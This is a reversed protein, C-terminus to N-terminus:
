ELENNEAPSFAVLGLRIPECLRNWGIQSGVSVRIGRSTKERRGAAEEEGSLLLAALSPATSQGRFSNWEWIGDNRVDGTKRDLTLKVVFEESPQGTGRSVRTRFYLAKTVSTARLIPLPLTQREMLGRLSLLAVSRDRSERLAPAFHETIEIDNPYDLDLRVENPLMTGSPRIRLPLSANQVIVLTRMILNGAHLRDAKFLALPQDHREKSIAAGDEIDKLHKVGIRDPGLLPIGLLWGEDDQVPLVAYMGGPHRFLNLSIHLGANTMFSPKQTTLFPLSPGAPFMNACERFERPSPAFIRQFELNKLPLGYGWLFISQDDSTRLIEHQLRQFAREGEGYLLPMNVGFLGMLCYAEDEVRTTERRAAWSMKTAVSPVEVRYRATFFLRRIGTIQELLEGIEDKIAIYVWDKNHLFVFPPVLLEQLTWGRRFWRSHPLDSQLKVEETTLRHLPPSSVDALYAVCLAAREYWQYMSNIAESLEASSEKNICCTDVWVYGVPPISRRIERAYRSELDVVGEHYGRALSVFRQIKSYGTRKKLSECKEQLRARQKPPFEDIIGDKLEQDHNIIWNYDQFSIEEAEWTHSLIAYRPISDGFFEELALTKLNILRM